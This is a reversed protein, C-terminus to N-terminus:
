KSTDYAGSDDLIYTNDFAVDYENKSGATVAVSDADSVLQTTNYIIYRDGKGAINNTHTKYDYFVVVYYSGPTINSVTISYETGVTAAGDTSGLAVPTAQANTLTSYLYVYIKKSGPATADELSGNYTANVTISGTTVKDKSDDEPVIECGVFSLTVLLSLFLISISKM